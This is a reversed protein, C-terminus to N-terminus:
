NDPKLEIAKKFSKEAEEIRGRFNSLVGLNNHSKAHMPQITLIQRYLNEAEDINGNRHAIIALELIQNITLEM